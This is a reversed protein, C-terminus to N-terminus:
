DGVLICLEAFRHGLVCSVCNGVCPPKAITASPLFFPSPLEQQGCVSNNVVNEVFGWFM